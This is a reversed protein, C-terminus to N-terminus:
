PRAKGARGRLPLFVLFYAYYAVIAGRGALLWGGQAHHRGASAAVVAAGVLIVLALLPLVSRVVLGGGGAGSGHRVALETNSAGAPGHAQGQEAATNRGKEHGSARGRDLGKDLWPVAFLVAVAGGSLLVGGLKFPVVQMMGYFPLFYWEPEIDTPTHLPNAPRYNAPETILGPWFCMVLVFALAFVLVALIDRVTFYPYFPLFGRPPVVRGSPSSSGRAHVLAVHLGVVGVILFALSFHLTFMRHLTPTGPMEGGLFIREALPGVVPISGVAKGAVDAGWYSMQGWPLVYGAFATIMLLALLTCGSLWVARRPELYSRYYLGRLIHGYLAAMCFSAGTMHMARLLWGSPLRRELAEVSTFALGADPTYALSLTLGTLVMLGLVAVLMAGITWFWNLDAPLPLRAYDRVFDVAGHVGARAKVGTGAGVSAGNSAGASASRDGKEM